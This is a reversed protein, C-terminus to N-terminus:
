LGEPLPPIDMPCGREISEQALAGLATSYYASRAAETPPDNEVIRRYFEDRLRNDGGGHAGGAFPPKWEETRREPDHAYEIRV